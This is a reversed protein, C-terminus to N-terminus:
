KTIKNVGEQGLCAPLLSGAGQSGLAQFSLCIGGQLGSNLDLVPVLDLPKRKPGRNGRIETFHPRQDPDARLAKLLPPGRNYFRSALLGPNSNHGQM